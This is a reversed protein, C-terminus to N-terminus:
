LKSKLFQTTNPKYSKQTEIYDITKKMSLNFNNLKFKNNIDTIEKLPDKILNDYEIETLNGDPILLKQQNYEANLSNYIWLLNQEIDSRTFKQFTYLTLLREYLNYTSNLVQDRDRKMYIFKADPFLELLPKIRLTNTPNKSVIRKNKSAYSIKKLFFTYYKKWAAYNNENLVAYETFHSKTKLPFCLAEYYSYPCLSNIAFEDEQPFNVNLQVNDMPRKSPLLANLISKLFRKGSLFLGPMLCQYTTPFTFQDNLSILNHMYTTGSRWHGIIFIPPDIIQTKNIRRTFFIKEIIYFPYLLFTAFIVQLIRPIYKISINFKNKILIRLVNHTSSGTLYHPNIKNLKLM